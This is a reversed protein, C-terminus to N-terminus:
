EGNNGTNRERRKRNQGNTACLVVKAGELAFEKAIAKGLGSSSAMALVVKGRLGLEMTAGGGM